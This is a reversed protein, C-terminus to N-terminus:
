LAEGRQTKRLLTAVSAVMLAAAANHSLAAWLPLSAVANIIGLFLQLALLALFGAAVLRANNKWLTAALAIFAAVVVIAFARHAFHIAVLADQALPRGDVTQGLDRNLAFGAPSMRPPVLAGQCTPFEAGCALGAYNASVWGGLVIQVFLAVAAFVVCVRVSRPSPNPPPNRAPNKKAVAFTLLFLFLMGGFLHAVVIAPQLKQTVTLAGLIGQAVVVAALAFVAARHKERKAAALVAAALVALGLVAAAYRHAVEIWAKRPDLPADPHRESATARDPIGVLQGYCAPWDPCGLGADSLRVFAGFVIVAFALPLAPVLVARSTM